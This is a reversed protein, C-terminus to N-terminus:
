WPSPSRRCSAPAPLRRRRRTARAAGATSLARGAGGVAPPAPQSLRATRGRGVLAEEPTAHGTVRRARDGEFAIALDFPEAVRLGRSADDLDHVASIVLANATEALIRVDDLRQEPWLAGLEKASARMGAQGRRVHQEASMFEVDPDFLRVWGDVDGRNLALVGRCVAELRRSGTTQSLVELREDLGYGRYHVVKGDRLTWVELREAEAEGHPGSRRSRAIVHDVWV